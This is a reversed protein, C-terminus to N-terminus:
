SNQGSDGDVAVVKTVLYGPEAARPVLDNCPATGNQLPYLVFPSNDNEDLVMVRVMAQSSLAPSGGDTAMVTFHFTQIAEYDLSQLIYLHGNDSNISIYSFLPLDRFESSLLSYTVKANTGSDRDSASVSGIHLAPSNNEQLYLMYLTQTFVPPNDNIDSVLVTINHETKLRPTGLDMVTITINYEAKSERDLAGETLLTYFNDVSPKLIFPLDDQIFCVMKGNDGSDRDRTKFVAVMTEPLNESIPSTLSSITLGPPNDNVDTVQVVVTCKGSLGGGDIAEIDVEYSQITEFDLQKRMRVEGSNQNVEFTKSIEESRHFLSYLIQGNNGIDLDRASVTVVLSGIPSNEPVQVEYRSQVFVPANDNIDMVLIRVETTGSRPPSGGDLAMLTLRIEPYEERDLAKNFVLEPYKNGESSSRTHVQFYSSPSITYNQINNEGVDLDEANKLSFLTGPPTNEPIKLLMETELFAPSHDNIDQVWLEIPIIQFPKELLIQFLLLCPEVPGCLEERDLKERLLLDGTELNLQLYRRNDESLVRAGRASLEGVELGLTKAVNAVFSGVEMEEAVSFRGTASGAECVWLLIVLYIVQRDPKM